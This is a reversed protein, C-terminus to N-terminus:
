NIGVWHDIVFLEIAMWRGEIQSCIQLSLRKQWNWVDNMKGKWLFKQEKFLFLDDGVMEAVLLLEFNKLFVGM